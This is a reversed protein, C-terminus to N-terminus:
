NEEGDLRAMDRCSAYDMCPVEGHVCNHCRYKDVIDELKAVHDLLFRLDSPAHAILDADDAVCSGLGIVNDMDDHEPDPSTGVVKCWCETDKGAKCHHAYWPGPTAKALRASIEELRSM